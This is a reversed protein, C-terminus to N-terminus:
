DAEYKKGRVLGRSNAMTNKFNVPVTEKKRGDKWVHFHLHPGSSCGTDGSRGIVDGQAVVDGVAVDAGDKTLHVYAAISGDSHEIFVHNDDPCGNGDEFGEEVEIVEGARVAILETNIPMDFDYAFRQDGYHSVASCNGQTVEYSDGSAYPLDYDSEDQVAYGECVGKHTIMDVGQGCSTILIFFLALKLIYFIKLIWKINM